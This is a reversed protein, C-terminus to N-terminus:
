QVDLTLPLAFAPFDDILLLSVRRNMPLRMIQDVATGHGVAQSKPKRGGTGCSGRGHFIWGAREPTSNRRRSASRAACSATVEEVFLGSPLRM